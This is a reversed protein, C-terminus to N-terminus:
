ADPWTVHRCFSRTRDSSAIAASVSPTSAAYLQDPGGGLRDNPLSSPGTAYGYRVSSATSRTPNFKAPPMASVISNVVNLSRMLRKYAASRAPAEAPQRTETAAIINAPGTRANSTEPTAASAEARSIAVM